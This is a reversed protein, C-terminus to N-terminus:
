HPLNHSTYWMKSTPEEEGGVADQNFTLISKSAFVQVKVKHILKRREKLKFACVRACVGVHNM